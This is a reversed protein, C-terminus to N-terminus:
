TELAAMELPRNGAEKRRRACDRVGGAHQVGRVGRVQPLCLPLARRHRRRLRQVGGGAAAGRVRAAAAGRGAALRDDELLGGHRGAVQRLRPLHVLLPHLRRLLALAHLPRLAAGQHALQLLLPPRLLRPLHRGPRAGHLPPPQVAGAVHLRQLVHLPLLRRGPGQGAPNPQTPNPPNPAHSRTHARTLAHSRTSPPRPPRARRGGAVAGCMLCCSGERSAGPFCACCALMRGRRVRRCFNCFPCHYIERHPDDDFLHCIDCYYRAMSAGCAGCAAGVAGRAGCEMCVMEAVAHRDLAHDPTAEDHCLRCVFEGGCCPAVLAARRRYHRCGLVGAAADHFRRAGQPPAPAPPASSAPQPPPPPPLQPQPQPQPQQQQPPPPPESAAPAHAATPTAAASGSRPTSAMRRQQAVIYRSAMLNQILYAKRQPELSADASVRRVAVELQKQNMRFIEEWGPRFRSTDAAISAPDASAPPPAPLLGGEGGGGGAPLGCSALYQAVEALVERQEEQFSLAGGAPAAQQAAAAGGEEKGSGGLASGLWAEFATSKSASKLSLMMAQSEDETLSGRVWSLMTHLVEAGTRGIIVGVLHEQEEASFHEAFLPWLEAEEARVHTELSARVASTLRALRGALARLAGLGRGGGGALAALAEVVDGVGQLLQEEQQHDLTYAHSVNHLAEKAELAPFVIDDEAHSHARYIGRLFEFRARLGRVSADLEGGAEWCPADDAAAQLAVSSAELERLERRLAKHFQFIHDIPNAAGGAAFASASASAAAAGPPGAPAAASARPAGDTRIRKLRPAAAAAVAVAAETAAAAAAAAALPGCTQNGYAAPDDSGRRLAANGLQSCVPGTDAPAAAGRLAWQTLLEVLAGDAAPAARAINDLWERVDDERLKGAVWPMVRELLRLPMARLLRWVMHRQEAACLSRMLVPLVDAEERSMHRGMARALRDAVASLDAMLASVESSGRRACSRVDGLLRGLEEFQASEAVHDDECRHRGEGPAAAVHGGGGHHAEHHALAAAAAATQDRAAVRRLAPFVVEDESSSHFTCVARIFRHREVLAALQAPGLHAGAGASRLARAEEAFSALASRIAQHFYLIERLPPKTGLAGGDGGRGADEVDRDVHCGAAAAATATGAGGGGGRVCGCCVFEGAADPTGPEAAGDDDAGGGGAGGPRLWSVLLQRLLRDPVAAHVHTLLSAQEAPPVGKRLWGLVPAVAALPICCLFQAVLAAQERFSFHRLLLPLLQEEEKALHKGLTTHVEEVKRALQRVTAGRGGPAPAASPAAGSLAASLLGSLEELLHGQAM